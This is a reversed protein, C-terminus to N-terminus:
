LHFTWPQKQVNSMYAVRLNDPSNKTFMKSHITMMDSRWPEVASQYLSEFSGTM